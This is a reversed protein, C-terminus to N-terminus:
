HSLAITKSTRRVLPAISFSRLDSSDWILFLEWKPFQLEKMRREIERTRELRALPLLGSHVELSITALQMDETSWNHPVKKM